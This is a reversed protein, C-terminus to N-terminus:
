YNPSHKQNHVKRKQLRLLALAEGASMGFRTYFENDFAVSINWEFSPADMMRQCQKEFDKAKM